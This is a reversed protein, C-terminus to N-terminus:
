WESILQTWFLFVFKITLELMFRIIGSYYYKLQKVCKKRRWFIFGGNLKDLGEHRWNHLEWIENNKLENVIIRTDQYEEYITRAHTHTRMNWIIHCLYICKQSNLTGSASFHTCTHAETWILSTHTHTFVIALLRAYSHAYTSHWEDNCRTRERKCDCKASENM